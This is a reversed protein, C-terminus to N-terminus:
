TIKKIDIDVATSKLLAKKINILELIYEAEPNYKKSYLILNLLTNLIRQM